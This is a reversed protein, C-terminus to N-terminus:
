NDIKLGQIQVVKALQRLTDDVICLSREPSCAGAQSTTRKVLEVLFNNLRKQIIGLWDNASPYGQESHLILDILALLDKKSYIGSINYKSSLTPDSTYNARSNVFAAILRFRAAAIRFEDLESEQMNQDLYAVFTTRLQNSFGQTELLHRCADNMPTFDMFGVGHPSLPPGDNGHFSGNVPYLSWVPTSGLLSAKSKIVLQESLVPTGDVANVVRYAIDEVPGSPFQQIMYRHDAVPTGLQIVGQDVAMQFPCNEVRRPGLFTQGRWKIPLIFDDGGVRAQDDMAPINIDPLREARFKTYLQDIRTAVVPQASPAPSPTAGSGPVPLFGVASSSDAPPLFSHLYDYSVHSVTVQSTLAPIVTARLTKGDTLIAKLQTTIQGTLASYDERKGHSSLTRSVLVAQMFLTAGRAWEAPNPPDPPLDGTSQSAIQVAVAILNYVDSVQDLQVVVNTAGADIEGNFLSQKSISTAHREGDNVADIFSQLQLQHNASSALRSVSCLKDASMDLATIYSDRNSQSQQSAATNIEQSVAALEHSLAIRTTVIQVLLDNLSNMITLQQKEVIALRLQMDAWFESIQKSLKEVAELIVSDPSSDAAFLSSVLNAGTLFASTLQLPGFTPLPLSFGHIATATIVYAQGITSISRAAASDHLISGALFSSIAIASSIDRIQQEYSQRDSPASLAHSSDSQKTTISTRAIADQVGNITSQVDAHGSSGGVGCIPRLANPVIARAKKSNVFTLHLAESMHSRSLAQEALPNIDILSQAHAMVITGLAHYRDASPEGYLPTAALDSSMSLALGLVPDVIGAFAPLAKVFNAFPASESIAPLEGSNLFTVFKDFCTGLDRHRIFEQNLKAIVAEHNSEHISSLEGWSFLLSNIAQQRKVPDTLTDANFGAIALRVEDASGQSETYPNSPLWNSLPIVYGKSIAPQIATLSLGVLFTRRSTNM